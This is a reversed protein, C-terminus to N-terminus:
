DGSLWLLSGCVYLSDFDFILRNLICLPFLRVSTVANGGTSVCDTIITIFVDVSFDHKDSKAARVSQLHTSVISLQACVVMAAVTVV